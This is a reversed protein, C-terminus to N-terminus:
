RAAGAERIAADVEEGAARLREHLEASIPQGMMRGAFLKTVERYERAASLLRSTM